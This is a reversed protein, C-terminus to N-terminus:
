SDTNPVAQTMSGTPGIAPNERGQPPGFDIEPHRNEATIRKVLDELKYHPRTAKLVLSGKHVSFELESGPQLGVKNAFPKPIRIALSNDWKEVKTKM